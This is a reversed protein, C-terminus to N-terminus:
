SIIFCSISLLSNKQSLACVKRSDETFQESVYSIMDTEALKEGSVIRIGFLNALSFVVEFANEENGTESVLIHKQFLYDKFLKKM